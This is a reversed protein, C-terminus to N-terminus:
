GAFKPSRWKKRFNNDPSRVYLYSSVCGVSVTMFYTLINITLATFADTVLRPIPLLFFSWKESSFVDAVLCLPYLQRLARSRHLLHQLAHRRRQSRGSVQDRQVDGRELRRRDTDLVTWVDRWRGSDGPPTRRAGAVLQFSHDNM